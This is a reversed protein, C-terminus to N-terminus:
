TDAAIEIVALRQSRGSEGLLRPTLLRHGTRPRPRRSCDSPPSRVAKLAAREWDAYVSRVLDLNAQAM